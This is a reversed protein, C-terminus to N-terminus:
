LVLPYNGVRKEYSVLLSKGDSAMTIDSAESYVQVKSYPTISISLVTLKAAGHAYRVIERNKLDGVVYKM